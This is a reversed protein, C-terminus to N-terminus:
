AARRLDVTVDMSTHEEPHGSITAMDKAISGTLFLTMPEEPNEQALAAAFPTVRVTAYLRAGDVQYNGTYTHSPDGGLIQGDHLVVMGDGHAPGSTFHTHWLGEM